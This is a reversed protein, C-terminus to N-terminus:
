AEPSNPGGWGVCIPAGPKGSVLKMVGSLKRVERLEKGGRHFPVM